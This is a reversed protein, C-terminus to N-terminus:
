EQKKLDGKILQSKKGVLVEAEHPCLISKNM